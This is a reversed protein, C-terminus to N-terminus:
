SWSFYQFVETRDKNMFILLRDEGLESYNYGTIEGAFDLTNISIGLTSLLEELYELVYENDYQGGLTEYIEREHNSDGNYYSGGQIFKGTELYKDRTVWYNIVGKIYHAYSFSIKKREEYGEKAFGSPIMLKDKHEKYILEAEKYWQTAKESDPIQKLDGEFKYQNGIMKFRIFNYGFHDDSVEAEPDGNGYVTIFHVKGNGKHISNLDVTLLPFFIAKYNDPPNLFVEEISPFLTFNSM